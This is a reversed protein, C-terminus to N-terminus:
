EAGGNDTMGQTASPNPLPGQEPAEEQKVFSKFLEQRAKEYMNIAETFELFRKKDETDVKESNIREQIAGFGAQRKVMQSNVMGNWFKYMMAHSLIAARVKDDTGELHATLISFAVNASVLAVELTMDNMESPLSREEEWVEKATRTFYRIEREVPIPISFTLNKVDSDYPEPLTPLFTGEDPQHGNNVLFRKFSNEASTEVPGWNLSYRRFNKDEGQEQLYQLIPFPLNGARSFIM